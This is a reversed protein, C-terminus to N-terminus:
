KELSNFLMMTTIDGRWHQLIQKRNKSIFHFMENKARGSLAKEAKTLQMGKLLIKPHEEVSVPIMDGNPMMIKVRPEHDKNKRSKGAENFWIAYELGSSMPSYNAMVMIDYQYMDLNELVQLNMAKQEVFLVEKWYKEINDM